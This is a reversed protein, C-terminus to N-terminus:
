HQCARLTVHAGAGLRRVGGTSRNLGAAGRMCPLICRLPGHCSARRAPRGASAGPQSLRAPRREAAGPLQAPPVPSPRRCPSGRVPAASTMLRGQGHLNPHPTQSPPSPAQQAKNQMEFARRLRYEPRCTPAQSHKLSQLGLPQQSCRQGEDGVQSRGSGSRAHCTGSFCRGPSRCGDARRQAADLGHQRSRRQQRQSRVLDHPRHM